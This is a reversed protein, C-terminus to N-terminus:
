DPYSGPADPSRGDSDERRLESDGPSRLTTPFRYEFLRDTSDTEAEVCRWGYDRLRGQLILDDPSVRIRAPREPLECMALILLREDIPHHRYEPLVNVALIKVGVPGTESVCLGVVNRMNRVALSVLYETHGLWRYLTKKSPRIDSLRLMARIQFEDAQTGERITIRRNALPEGPFWDLRTTFWTPRKVPM